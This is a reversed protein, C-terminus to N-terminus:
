SIREVSLLDERAGDTYIVKLQFLSVGDELYDFTETDDTITTTSLTRTIKRGVKGVIFGDISITSAEDNFIARIVQQFDRESFQKQTKAM